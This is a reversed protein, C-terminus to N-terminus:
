RGALAPLKRALKEPLSSAHVGGIVTFVNPSEVKIEQLFRYAEKIQLTTATVGLVDPSYAKLKTYAEKDVSGDFIKIEVTPLKERIYAALVALNLPPAVDDINIRPSVLALKL